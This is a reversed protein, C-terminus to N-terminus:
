DGSGGACGADFGAGYSVRSVGIGLAFPAYEHGVDEGESDCEEIVLKM